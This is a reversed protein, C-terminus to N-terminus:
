LFVCAWSAGEALNILIVVTAARSVEEETKKGWAGVSRM